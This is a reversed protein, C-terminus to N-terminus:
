GGNAKKCPPQNGKRIEDACESDPQCCNPLPEDTMEPIVIKEQYHASIKSLIEKAQKKEWDAIEEDFERKTRPREFDCRRGFHDSLSLAVIEVLEEDTKALDKVATDYGAQIADKIDKPYYVTKETTSFLNDKMIKEIEKPTLDTM